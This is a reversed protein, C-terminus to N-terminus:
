PFDLLIPCVMQQALFLTTKLTFTHNCSNFTSELSPGLRDLVIYNFGLHTGFARISPVGVAPTLMQYIESEQRLQPYKVGVSEVKVAVADGTSIDTGTFVHGQCRLQACLLPHQFHYRVLHM